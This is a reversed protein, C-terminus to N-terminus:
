GLSLMDLTEATQKAAMWPKRSFTTAVLCQPGPKHQSVYHRALLNIILIKM